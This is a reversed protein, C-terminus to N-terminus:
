RRPTSSSRRARVLILASAGAVLLGGAWAIAPLGDVGTAALQPGAVATLAWLRYNGSGDLAAIFLSGNHTFLGTAFSPPTPLPVFSTGDYRYVPDNGGAAPTGKLYLANDYSVMYDPYGPSGAIAM